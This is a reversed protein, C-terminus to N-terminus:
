KKKRPKGCILWGNLVILENGDFVHLECLEVIVNWILLNWDLEDCDWILLRLLEIWEKMMLLEVDWEEDWKEVDKEIVYNEVCVCNLWNDILWDIELLEDLESEVWWKEIVIWMILKLEDFEWCWCTIWDIWNVIFLIYYNLWYVCM